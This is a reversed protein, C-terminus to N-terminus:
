IREPYLFELLSPAKSDRESVTWPIKPWKIGIESDFPNITFELENNYKSSTTYAVLTGSELAAFAHGLGSSIFVSKGSDPLLDMAYWNLFTTSNPRIDIVVDLIAGRLCTVVKHQGEPALSFHIGRIVGRKSESVNCQAGKFMPLGASELVESSFWERFSGREDRWVPSTLEWAGEIPTKSIQVM